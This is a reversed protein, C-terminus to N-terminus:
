APPAPSPAAQRPLVGGRDVRLLPQSGSPSVEISVASGLDRLARNIRALYPDRPAM